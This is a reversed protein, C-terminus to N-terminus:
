CHSVSKCQLNELPNCMFNLLQLPITFHHAVQSRVTNEKPHITQDAQLTRRTIKCLLKEVCDQLDQRAKFLRKKSLSHKFSARCTGLECAYRHSSSLMSIIIIILAQFLQWTPQMTRYWRWQSNVLICFKTSKYRDEARM